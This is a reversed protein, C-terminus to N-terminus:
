EGGIVYLPIPIYPPRSRIEGIETPKLGTFVSAALLTNLFCRRGQCRGTGVGSYRKIHEMKRLEMGTVTKKIDELTVDTCFCVFTRRLDSGRYFTPHIGNFYVYGEKKKFANELRNLANGYLPTKGIVENLENLIDDYKSPLSKGLYESAKLGALAAQRIYIEETSVGGASGAIFINDVLTAGNVDHIPVYGGLDIDFTLPSRAMRILEIDPVIYPAHLISDVNLKIVQGEQVVKLGSVRDYGLATIKSVKDYIEIGLELAKARLESYKFGKYFSEIVRVKFGDEKLQIATQFARDTSGIIVINDGPKVGYKYYLRLGASALLTKPLDNYEYLAPVEYSGTAFIIVKYSFTILQDTDLKYGFASDEFFGEFVTNGLIYVDNEKLGKLLKNLYDENYMGHRYINLHGGLSDAEVLTTKLGSKSANYAAELGSYGGGVVLIDTDVNISKPYEKIPEKVYKPKNWPLIDDVYKLAINWAWMRNFPWKNYGGVRLYGDFVKLLSKPLPTSLKIRIKIGDSAKFLYPNYEFDGEVYIKEPGRWDFVMLGRPRNFRMSKELSYIGAKYLAAGIPLVRPVKVLKNNVYIDVYPESDDTM